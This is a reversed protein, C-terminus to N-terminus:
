NLGVSKAPPLDNAIHNLIPLGNGQTFQPKISKISTLAASLKQTDENPIQRIFPTKTGPILFSVKVFDNIEEVKATGAEAKNFASEQEKIKEIYVRAASM